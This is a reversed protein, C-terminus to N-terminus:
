IVESPDLIRCTGHYHGNKCERGQGTGPAGIFVYLTPAGCTECPYKDDWELCVHDEFNTHTGCKECQPM